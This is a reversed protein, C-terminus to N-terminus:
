HGQVNRGPPEAAVDFESVQFTMCILHQLNCFEDGYKLHEVVRVVRDCREIPGCGRTIMTSEGDSQVVQYVGNGSENFNGPHLQGSPGRLNLVIINRAKAKKLPEALGKVLAGMASESTSRSDQM